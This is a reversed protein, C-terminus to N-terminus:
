ICQIIYLFSLSISNNYIYIYLSWNFPVPVYLYDNVCARVLMLLNPIDGLYIWQDLFYYYNIYLTYITVYKLIRLAQISLPRSNYCAQLRYGKLFGVGQKKYLPISDFGALDLSLTCSAHFMFFCIYEVYDLIKFQVM